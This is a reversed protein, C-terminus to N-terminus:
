SLLYMNLIRVASEYGYAVGVCYDMGDLKEIWEKQEPQVTGGKQRKMEIFLVEHTKSKNRALVILDPFGKRMGMKKLTNSYGVRNFSGKPMKFGNQTSIVDIDHLECYSVFSIQEDKELPTTNKAMIKEKGIDSYRNKIKLAKKGM